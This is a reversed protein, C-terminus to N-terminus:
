STIETVLLITEVGVGETDVIDVVNATHVLGGRDTWTVQTQMGIGAHYRGNMIYSAHAVVTQGFLKESMGVSARQIAFRWTSPSLPVRAQTFGGDGDPIAPGPDTLTGVQRLDGLILTVNSM